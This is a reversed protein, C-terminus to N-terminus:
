SVNDLHTGLHHLGSHHHYHELCILFRLRQETMQFELSTTESMQVFHSLQMLCDDLPSMGGVLIGNLIDGIDFLLVENFNDAMIQLYKESLSQSPIWNNHRYDHIYLRYSRLFVTFHASHFNTIM